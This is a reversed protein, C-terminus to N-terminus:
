HGAPAPAEPREAPVYDARYIDPELYITQATAEAARIAQEAADITGAVAEASAGERVGIKAAVLLEEPGLHLTKMHIISDV